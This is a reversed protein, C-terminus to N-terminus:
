EGLKELEDEFENYQKRLNSKKVKIPEFEKETIVGEQLKMNYTDLEKLEDKIDQMQKQITEKKINLKERNSIENAKNSDFVWEGGVYQYAFWYLEDENPPLSSVPTGDLLKETGIWYQGNYYGEDDLLVSCYIKEENLEEM